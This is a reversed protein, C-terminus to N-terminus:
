SATDAECGYSDENGSTSVVSVTLRSDIITSKKLKVPLFIGRRMPVQDAVTIGVDSFNSEGRGLRTDSSSEDDNPSENASDDVASDRASASAFNAQKGGSIASDGCVM